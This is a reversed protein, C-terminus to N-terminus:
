AQGLFDLVSVFTFGAKLAGSLILPLARVTSSRDILNKPRVNHGDHLLIVAGAKLHRLTLGVIADASEKWDYGTDSWQVM